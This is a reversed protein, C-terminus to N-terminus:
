APPCGWLASLVVPYAAVAAPVAGSPLTSAFVAIKGASPIFMAAQGYVVPRIVQLEYRLGLNLTLKPTIKWDDQVFAAYRNASNEPSPSLSHCNPPIPIASHSIGM